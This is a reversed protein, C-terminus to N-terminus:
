HTSPRDGRAVRLGLTNFGFPNPSIGRDVLDLPGDDDWSKGRIVRYPCDYTADWASGDEPAHTYGYHGCDQVWSRVNGTTDHLGFANAPFHGVPSTFAFGDNCNAFANPPVWFGRGRGAYLEARLAADAGNGYSCQRSRDADSDNTRDGWPLTTQIGARNIYEYEAESLLRYHYGSKGSLWNAYDRAENWTVCVVPHDDEQPFGPSKWSYGRKMRWDGDALMERAYCSSSGPLGSTKLYQRWQGRTVPHKGVAFTYAIHVNHKPSVFDGEAGMMFSGPPIVVMEPCDPCDRFTEGIHHGALTARSSAPPPEARVSFAVALLLCAIVWTIPKM